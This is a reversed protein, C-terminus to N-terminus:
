RGRAPAGLTLSSASNDDHGGAFELPVPADALEVDHEASTMAAAELLALADVLEAGLEAITMGATEPVAHASALESGLKASAMM